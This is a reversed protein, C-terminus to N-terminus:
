RAVLEREWPKVLAKPLMDEPCWEQLRGYNGTTSYDKLTEGVYVFTFQCIRVGTPIWITAQSHNSIEMTWRSIYGSDGIGACRCVSLCSRAPTSRSHM